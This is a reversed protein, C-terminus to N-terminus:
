FYLNNFYWFFICMKMKIFTTTLLFNSRSWIIGLHIDATLPWRGVAIALNIKGCCNRIQMTRLNSAAAKTKGEWKKRIIQEDLCVGYRTWFLFLSVIILCERASKSDTGPRMNLGQGPSSSPSPAPALSPAPGPNPCLCRCWRVLPGCRKCIKRKNQM